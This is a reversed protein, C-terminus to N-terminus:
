SANKGELINKLLLPRWRPELTAAIYISRLADYARHLDDNVIWADFWHAERIENQATRLRRQIAEEDDLARRRLRDELVKLSPPLIFVYHGTALTLRLQAAGQVDIDFLVDKGNRLIDLIPNLPTGYFNGYVEAWEAFYGARQFELFTEQSVFTYDRGPIEGDRPSRTTCSTSYGIQPFEEMLMKVLTTKGTGSPACVVLVLGTREM